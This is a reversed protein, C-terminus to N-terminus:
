KLTMDKADMEDNGMPRVSVPIVKVRHWTPIYVLSTLWCKAAMRTTGDSHGVFHEVSSQECQVNVTYGLAGVQPTAIRIRFFEGM